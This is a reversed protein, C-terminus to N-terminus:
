TSKTSRGIKRITKRVGSRLTKPVQNGGRSPSAACLQSLDEHRSALSARFLASMAVACELGDATCPAGWSNPKRLSGFKVSVWFHFQHKAYWYIYQLPASAQYFNHLGNTLQFTNSMWLSYAEKFFTPLNSSTGQLVKGCPFTVGWVFFLQDRRYNMAHNTLISSNFFECGFLFSPFCVFSFVHQTGVITRNAGWSGFFRTFEVFAVVECCSLSSPSWWSNEKRSWIKWQTPIMVTVAQFFRSISFFISFFCFPDFCDFCDASICWTKTREMQGMKIFIPTTMKCFQFSSWSFFTWWCFPHM